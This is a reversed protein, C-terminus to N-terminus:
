SQNQRAKLKALLDNTSVSKKETKTEPAPDAVDSSETDDKSSERLKNLLDGTSTKVDEKKEEKPETKASGTGTPVSTESLDVGAPKFYQAWRDPEYPLGALSSQFMEYMANIHEEDPRNPVFDSLNFLGFKTIAELEEISLPDENFSWHSADYNNHQGKKRAHIEFDRGHEFDVVAHNVKVNMIIAKIMDHLGPGMIFRRIPNEPTEEEKVKNGRQDVFGPHLRVFGQYLYSLKKKYVRYEDHRGENWWPAIDRQIPDLNKEFMNLDPVTVSVSKRNGLDVGKVATFPLKRISREVWFFPNSDDGDPLFRLIAHTDIPISWHPYIASGGVTNSTNQNKEEEQKLLARMQALDLAM